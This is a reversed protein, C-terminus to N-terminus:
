KENIFIKCIIHNKNVIFEDVLNEVILLGRGSSKKELVNYAKRSIIGDGEDKVSLIIRKENIDLILHIKKDSNCKNGHEYCNVLLEMMILRIDFLLDESLIKKIDCLIKTVEININNITGCFEDDYVYLM